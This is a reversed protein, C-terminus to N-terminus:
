TDHGIVGPCVDPKTEEELATEMLLAMVDMIKASVIPVPDQHRRVDQVDLFDSTCYNHLGIMASIHIVYRHTLADLSVDVVPHKMEPFKSKFERALTDFCKNNM